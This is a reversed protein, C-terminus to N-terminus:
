KSKPEEEGKSEVAKEAEESAEEATVLLHRILDNNLYIDREFAPAVITELEIVLQVYHAEKHNKSAKRILYALPRKGWVEESKITGKHKKVLAQVAEQVKTLESDTLDGAVLYTLEYLKTKAATVLKM